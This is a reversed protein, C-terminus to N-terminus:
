VEQHISLWLIWFLNKIKKMKLERENLSNKQIVESFKKKIEEKEEDPQQLILKYGLNM